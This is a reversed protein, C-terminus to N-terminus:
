YVAVKQQEYKGELVAIVMHIDPGVGLLGVGEIALWNELQEGQEGCSAGRVALLLLLAEGAEKERPGLGAEESLRLDAM